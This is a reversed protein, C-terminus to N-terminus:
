ALQRASGPKHHVGSVLDMSFQYAALNHFYRVCACATAFSGYAVVHENLSEGPKRLQINLVFSNTTINSLYPEDADNTFFNVATARAVSNLVQVSSIAAGDPTSAVQLFLYIPSFSVLHSCLQHQLPLANQTKLSFAMARPTWSTTSLQFAGHCCAALPCCASM